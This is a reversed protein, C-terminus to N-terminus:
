ESKGASAAVKDNPLIKATSPEAIPIHQYSKKPVSKNKEDKAKNPTDKAM